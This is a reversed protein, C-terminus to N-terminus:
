WSLPFGAPIPGIALSGSARKRIIGAVLIRHFIDWRLGVRSLHAKQGGALAFHWDAIESRRTMGGTARRNAVLLHMGNGLLVEWDEYDTIKNVKLRQNTKKFIQFDSKSRAMKDYANPQKMIAAQGQFRKSVLRTSSGAFYRVHRFSCFFGNLTYSEPPKLQEQARM